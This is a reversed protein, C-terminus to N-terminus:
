VNDFTILDFMSRVRKHAKQKEKEVASKEEAKEAPPEAVDELQSDITLQNGDVTGRRLPKMDLEFADEINDAIAAVPRKETEATDATIEEAVTEAVEETVEEAVVEAVVEDVVAETNDEEVVIEVVVEEEVKEETEETDNKKDELEDIEDELDDIEDELDDIEEELKEIKETAEGYAKNLKDYEVNKADIEADKAALAAELEAIKEEFGETSVVAQKAGDLEAVLAANKEEAEAVQTKLIRIQDNAIDIGSKMTRAQDETYTLQSVLKENEGKLADLEALMANIDVGRMEEELRNVTEQLKSKESCYDLACLLAAEIKTCRNESKLFIERIRRDLVGVMAEVVETEEETIINMQIDAITITHKYKM